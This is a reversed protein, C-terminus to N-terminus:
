HRCEIFNGCDPYHAMQHKKVVMELHKWLYMMKLVGRMELKVISDM